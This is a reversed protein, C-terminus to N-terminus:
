RGGETEPVFSDAEPTPQEAQPAFPDAEPEFKEVVEFRTASNRETGSDDAQLAVWVNVRLWKPIPKTLQTRPDDIGLKLLERKAITRAPPTLWIDHWLKRGKHEGDEIEFTLKYSPTGKKSTALEGKRWVCTYKGAPLPTGFDDAQQIEDWGDFFGDLNGGNGNVIGSFKGSM